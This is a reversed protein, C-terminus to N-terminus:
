EWPLVAQQRLERNQATNQDQQIDEKISAGVSHLAGLISGKVADTIDKQHLLVRLQPEITPQYEKLSEFAVVATGRIIAPTEERPIDDAPQWLFELKTPAGDFLLMRYLYPLTVIGMAHIAQPAKRRAEAVTKQHKEAQEVTSYKEPYGRETSFGQSCFASFETYALWYGIPKAEFM